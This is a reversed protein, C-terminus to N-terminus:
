IIVDNSALLYRNVNIDAIKKQLNIRYRLSTAFFYLSNSYIWNEFKNIM